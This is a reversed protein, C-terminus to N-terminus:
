RGSLAKLELVKVEIMKTLYDDFSGLNDSIVRQAEPALRDKIQKFARGALFELQERDAKGEKVAERLTKATTQEIAGVTATLLNDLDLLANDLHSRLQEAKLQATQAMVGMTAKRLYYIGYAALLSLLSILAESLVTEILQM